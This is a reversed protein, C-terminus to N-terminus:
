RRSGATPRRAWIKTHKSYSGRWATYPRQMRYISGGATVTYTGLIGARGCAKAESWHRSARWTDVWSWLHKRMSIVVGWTTEEQLTCDRQTGHQKTSAPSCNVHRSSTHLMPLDLNM